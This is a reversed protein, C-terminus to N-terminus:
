SLGAALIEERLPGRIRAKTARYADLDIALLQALVAELRGDLAEGDVAADLYGLEAARVPDLMAGTPVLGYGAPHLRHRALALAFGPPTIAIATENLGIRWNGVVGLRVDAALMLFAGMPFAHGTCVTVVPHPHDLIRVILDVGAQVMTRIEDENGRQFTKLDFGASFIGERGRLVTVRAQEAASQLRGNVSELMDASMVNLKGDDLTITAVGDRVDLATLTTRTM